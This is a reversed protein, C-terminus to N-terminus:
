GVLVVIVVVCFRLRVLVVISLLIRLFYFGFWNMFFGIDLNKFMLCM